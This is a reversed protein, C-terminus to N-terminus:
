GHEFVFDPPESSFYDCKFKADKPISYPDNPDDVYGPADIEAKDRAAQTQCSSMNDFPGRFLFCKAECEIEYVGAGSWGAGANADPFMPIFWIGALFIAWRM